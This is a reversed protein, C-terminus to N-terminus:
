SASGTIVKHNAGYGVFLVEGSDSALLHVTAIHKGTGAFTAEGRVLRIIHAKAKSIDASTAAQTVQRDKPEPLSFYGCTVVERLGFNRIEDASVNRERYPEALTGQTIPTSDPCDLPDPSSTPQESTNASSSSVPGIAEEPSDRDSDGCASTLLLAFTASWLGLRLPLRGTQTQAM